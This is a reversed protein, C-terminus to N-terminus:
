IEALYSRLMELIKAQDAPYLEGSQKVPLFPRAPINGWLRPFQVKTGGFQQIAAYVMSNGITVSTPTTSVHFQRCLDGSHGILPKKSMALGM